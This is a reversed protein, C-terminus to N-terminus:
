LALSVITVIATWLTTIYASCLVIPRRRKWGSGIRKHTGVYKDQKSTVVLRSSPVQVIYM